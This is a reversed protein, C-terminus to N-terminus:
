RRALLLLVGELYRDLAEGHPPVSSPSAKRVAFLGLYISYAVLARHRAELKSFGLEVFADVLYEIRRETVRGLVETVASADQAAMLATEVRGAIPDAFATAFLQQLREFPDAIEELAGIVEETGLQEWRLVAAELLAARDAFHWYFSGKSAGVRPALTEVAVASIGGQAIAELAARAWDDPRLNPKGM